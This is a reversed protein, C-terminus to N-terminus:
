HATSDHMTTDFFRVAVATSPLGGIGDAGFQGSVM